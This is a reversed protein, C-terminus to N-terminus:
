RSPTRTSRCSCRPRGWRRAQDELGLEVAPGGARPVLLALGLGVGDAGVAAHAAGQGKVHLVVLDDLDRRGVVVVIVEPLRQMLPRKPKWCTCFRPEPEAGSESGTQDDRMEVRGAAPPMIGTSCCRQRTVWLPYKPHTKAVTSHRDHRTGPSADAALVRQAQGRWPALTTTLSRPPLTSPVPPSRLGAWCTTSSIVPIPPSACRWRPRCRSRPPPASAQDVGGDLAEAVEVDNTFLAPMRRSRISVFMVSSSHSATM